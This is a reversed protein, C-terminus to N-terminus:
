TQTCRAWDRSAQAAWQARLTELSPQFDPDSALSEPSWRLTPAPFLRPRLEPLSLGGMVLAAGRLSAERCPATLAQLALPAGEVPGCWGWPTAGDPSPAPFPADGFSVRGLSPPGFQAHSLGALPGTWVAAYEDAGQGTRQVRVGRIDARAGPPLRLAIEQATIRAIRGWHELLGSWRSLADIWRCGRATLLVELETVEQQGWARESRATLRIARGLPEASWNTLTDNVYPSLRKGPRILHQDTVGWDTNGPGKREGPASRLAQAILWSSPVPFDTVIESFACGELPLLIRIPQAAGWWHRESRQRLEITYGARLSGGLDCDAPFDATLRGTVTTM